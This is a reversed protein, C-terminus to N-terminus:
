ASREVALIAKLNDPLGAGTDVQRARIWASLSDYLQGDKPTWTESGARDWYVTGDQQTFAWSDIVTGPALGLKKAEVEIRVWKGTPPLGGTRLREPTDDKDWAIM